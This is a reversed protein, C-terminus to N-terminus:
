RGARVVSWIALVILGVILAMITGTIIYSIGFLEGGLQFISYFIGIGMDGFLVLASLISSFIFGLTSIQPNETTEQGFATRQSETNTNAEDLTDSVNGVMQSILPNQSVSVNTNNEASLYASFSFISFVFLGVILGYTFWDKFEMKTQVEV